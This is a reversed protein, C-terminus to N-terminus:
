MEQEQEQEQKQEQEQEQGQYHSRYPCSGAALFLTGVLLVLLFPAAKHLVPGVVYLGHFRDVCSALCLSPDDATVVIHLPPVDTHRRVLALDVQDLQIGRAATTLDNGQVEGVGVLIGGTGM